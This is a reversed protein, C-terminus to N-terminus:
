RHHCEELINYVNLGSIEKQMDLLQQECESDPEADWYSGDCADHLSRYQDWTILSKGVVFHPYADGDFKEDTCGNGM